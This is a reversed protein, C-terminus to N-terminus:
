PSLAPSPPRQMSWEVRRIVAFHAEWLWRLAAFDTATMLPWTAPKARGPAPAPYRRFLTRAAERQPASLLRHAGGPELGWLRARQAMAGDSCQFGLEHWELDQWRPCPAPVVTGWQLFHRRLQELRDHEALEEPTPPEPQLGLQLEVVHVYADSM